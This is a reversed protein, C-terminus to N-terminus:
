PIAEHEALKTQTEALERQAQDRQEVLEAIKLKNVELDECNTCNVCSKNECPAVELRLTDMGPVLTKNLIVLNKDCNNCRVEVNM